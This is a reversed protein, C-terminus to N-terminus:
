SSVMSSIKEKYSRWSVNGQELREMMTKGKSWYGMQMVYGILMVIIRLKQLTNERVVQRYNFCTTTSDINSPHKIEHWSVERCVINPDDILSWMVWLLMHYRFDKRKLDPLYHNIPWIIYLLILISFIPIKQLLYLFIYNLLM